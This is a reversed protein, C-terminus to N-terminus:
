SSVTAGHSLQQTLSRSLRLRARSPAPSAEEEQRLRGAVRDDPFHGQFLRGLQERVAQVPQGLERLLHVLLLDAGIVCEEHEVVLLLVAGVEARMKGARVALEGPHQVAECRGRWQGVQEHPQGEVRERHEVVRM